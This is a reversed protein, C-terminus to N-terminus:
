FRKNDPLKEFPNVHVPLFSVGVYKKKTKYGVFFIEPIIDSSEYKHGAPKSQATAFEQGAKTRSQGGPNKQEV